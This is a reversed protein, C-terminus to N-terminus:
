EKEKISDPSNNLVAVIYNKEKAESEHAICM